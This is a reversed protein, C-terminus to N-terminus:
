RRCSSSRGRGPRCWVGPQTAHGPALFFTRDVAPGKQGEPAKPFAPPVKAENWSKGGDPSRFVTPGLHGTKAALLIARGDRPDQVMHSAECGLMIPEAQRWARRTGDETFVFAGKLTGIFLQVPAARPAPKRAAAKRTAAKRTVAKGAAKRPAPKRAKAKVM